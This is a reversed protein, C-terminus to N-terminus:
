YVINWKCGDETLCKIKYKTNEQRQVVTWHLNVTKTRITRHRGMNPGIKKKWQGVDTKIRYKVPWLELMWWGKAQELQDNIEALSDFYDEHIEPLVGTERWTSVTSVSRTMSGMSSEQPSSQATPPTFLDKVHEHIKPTNSMENIALLRRVSDRRKILSPLTGGAYEDLASPPPGCVPAKRPECKPWLTDVDLGHEALVDTHFLIGTNCEFTQRLMWRLPIRSVMHRTDNAVAGGGCDAHCGAFWVELVDTPQGYDGFEKRDIENFKKMMEFEAYSKGDGKIEKGDTDVKTSKRRSPLMSSRRRPQGPSSPSFKEKQIQLNNSQKEQLIQAKKELDLDIEEPEAFITNTLKVDFASARKHHASLAREFTSSDADLVHEPEDKHGPEEEEMHYLEDRQFWHNAKFKARREDLALAHRFYRVSRNNTKAFPLIRPIFGVSAVTDWCGLFHVDADISFTRKFDASMKWGYESNDKYWRYAFVIQAQNHAPLLGVKHLMGALARATYAGRSFGILCIKDGERYNQMLFSYAERVHVGLSAGVAMDLGASFGKKLSGKYSSSYTGVGTQYYTLQTPDDKKLAAFFKVVNSNDNDFQDGTGDLCVIINRARKNQTTSDQLAALVPPLSTQSATSSSMPFIHHSDLTPTQEFDLSSHIALWDDKVQITPKGKSYTM